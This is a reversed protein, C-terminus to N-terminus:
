NGRTNRGNRQGCYRGDAGVGLAFPTIPRDLARLAAYNATAFDKATYYLDSNFTVLYNVGLVNINATGSTGSLTVTISSQLLISDYSSTTGDPDADAPTFFTFGNATNGNPLTVPTITKSWQSSSGNYLRPSIGFLPEEPTGRGSITIGDVSIGVIPNTPDTNDTNLGRVSNVSGGGGGSSADGFGFSNNVKLGM